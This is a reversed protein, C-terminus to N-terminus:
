SKKIGWVVRDLGAFDKLVSVNEFGAKEMLASVDAAQTEGIEFAMLGGKKLASTWRETIFRYFVLGDEGGDLAEIPEKQVETELTAIEAKEIYPPNSVIFDLESYDKIATKDLVDLKKLTVRGDGYLPINEKMVAIPAPFLEAETVFANKCLSIIGLGVAGSGGCLDIGRMAKDGIFDAACRVLVETDERPTLVGETVKLKMDMFWWYGLIYQLVEHNKRKNVATIFKEAKESAAEEEGHLLIYGRDAGLFEEALISVDSVPVDATAFERRAFNYLERLTSM